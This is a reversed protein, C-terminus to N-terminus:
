GVLQRRPRQAQGSRGLVRMSPSGSSSDSCALLGDAGQRLVAGGDGHEPGPQGDGEDVAAVDSRPWAM